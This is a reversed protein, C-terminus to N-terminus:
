FYLFFSCPVSISQEFVICKQNFAYLFTLFLNCAPRAVSLPFWSVEDLPEHLCSSNSSCKPPMPGKKWTSSTILQNTTQFMKIKGYIPFLWGLQSINKLPTSVVLWDIYVRHQDRPGWSEGMDRTGITDRHDEEGTGKISLCFYCAGQQGTDARTLGIGKSECKM